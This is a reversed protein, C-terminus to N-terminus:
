DLLCSPFFQAHPGNPVRVANVSTLSAFGEIEAVGHSSQTLWWDKRQRSEAKKIQIPNLKDARHSNDPTQPNPMVAPRPLYGPGEAENGFRDYAFEASWVAELAQYAACVGSISLSERM